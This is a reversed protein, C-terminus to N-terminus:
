IIKKVNLVRMANLVAIVTVGVDAFVSEWLTAIGLAGLTLFISKIGLSFLINQWIITRTRKAIKIGSVLKSPEDTMIVVDAAEIAVDSGLGGMAVGIDARALVPADNIGDGVFILKGKSEKELLEVKEVKEYPLLGAHVEDIGLQKGVKEGINKNDGTLMITRKVGINQLDEIAKKSDEKIEDSIIMYGSYKKEIAIHIITGITDIEPTKIHYQTMLKNNGVLVEKGKIKAKIGQGSIEQYEAIEQQNINKGYEKLVSTGIPHSSYYEAYAAYELLQNQNIHDNHIIKTVKFVGKTLTGTKDFVVTDVDNLAELFNSGKILLGLKSAGGIGGFFGLPISVVLACPCSIVLFVLSRYIWDSFTAGELIIPPIIALIAATLVVIPTYYRAFKTIFNETKSKKSSANQVLELIKSVTSEKFEKEVKITLVGSTNIFGSLIQEGTKAKIPISEGTLDSTDLMASGQIIIGDLPVKEGPKVVILQGIKVDYPSIKKIDEGTKLNAFDPRIDMLEAISKRSRNVAIHQLYEGFQFFLIVAVAESMENIGFAGLTAIVMLFNEDFVQGKIINKGARLLIDYGIIFYSAIYLTMEIPNPLKLVLIAAFVITSIILRTSLKKLGKEKNEEEKTEIMNNKEIVKVNPELEKVIKKIEDTILLMSKYGEIVLQSSAFDYFAYQIGEINKVKDEIKRACNSCALGKLIYTKKETEISKAKINTDPEHEQHVLCEINKENIKNGITQGM